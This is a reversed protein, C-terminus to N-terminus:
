QVGFEKYVSALYPKWKDPLGTSWPIIGPLYKPSSLPHVPMGNILKMGSQKLSLDAKRSNCSRCATVINEWCTPSGKLKKKAWESRSIVHDFTLDNPDFRNGCYQCTLSDRILVNKKSFPVQKKHKNVYYPVRAVAPIPYSVGGASKVVRDEYYEVAELGEGPMERNVIVLNFARKWCITSMPMFDANLILTRRSM